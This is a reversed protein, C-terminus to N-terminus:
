GMRTTSERAGSAGGYGEGENNLQLGRLYYRKVNRPERLGLARALQEALQEISSGAHQRIYAYRLSHPNVRFVNYLWMEVRAMIKDEGHKIYERYLHELDEREIFSPIIVLRNDGDKEARITFRREGYEYFKVAARLAERIRLGNALIIITISLYSSWLKFTKLKSRQRLEIVENFLELVVRTFKEYDVCKDFNSAEECDQLRYLSTDLIGYVRPKGRRKL